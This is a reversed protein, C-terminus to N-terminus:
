EHRKISENQCLKAALELLAEDRPAAAIAVERWGGGAAASVPASIAALILKARDSALAAVRM